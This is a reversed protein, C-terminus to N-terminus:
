LLVLGHHSPQAGPVQRRSRWRWPHRHLAGLSPHVAHRASLYRSVPRWFGSNLAVM